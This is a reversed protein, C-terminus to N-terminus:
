GATVWCRCTSINVGTIESVERWSKGEERLAIVRAKTEPSHRYQNPNLDVRFTGKKYKRQWDRVTYASLGLLAAASKYGMGAEFLQLAAKRKQASPYEPRIRVPPSTDNTASGRTTLRKNATPM